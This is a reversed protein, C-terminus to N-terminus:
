CPVDKAIVQFDTRQSAQGTDVSYELPNVAKNTYKISM